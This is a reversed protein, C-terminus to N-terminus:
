GPALARFGTEAGASPAFRGERAPSRDIELWVRAQGDRNVGWRHSLKDVINLGYGGDGTLSPERVANRQDFGPGPDSVEIRIRETDASAYLEVLDARAHMVSNTVLESVLLDADGRLEALTRDLSGIAARARAPATPGGSLRLNLTEKM